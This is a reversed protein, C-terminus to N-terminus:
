LGTDLRHMEGGISIYVWVKEPSKIALRLVPRASMPGEASYVYWGGSSTGSDADPNLRLYLSKGGQYPPSQEYFDGLYEGLVTAQSGNLSLRQNVPTSQTLLNNAVKVHLSDPDSDYELYSKPLEDGTPQIAVAWLDANVGPVALNRLVAMSLTAREITYGPLLTPLDFALIANRGDSSEAENTSGVQLSRFGTLEQFDETLTFDQSAAAVDQSRSYKLTLTPGTEPM